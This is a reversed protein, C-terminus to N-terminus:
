QKGHWLQYNGFTPLSRIDDIEINLVKNYGIAVVIFWTSFNIM